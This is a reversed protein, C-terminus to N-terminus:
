IDFWRPTIELTVGSLTIGNAGPNLVPYEHNATEVYEGMRIAGCHCLMAECDIDIYAQTHENITVEMNGIMFSGHGYVRILPQSPQGCPNMLTGDNTFSIATEGDKLWKQPQATFELTVTGNLHDYKDPAFSKYFIARRYIYPTQSEEVRCMGKCTALFSRMAEMNTQMDGKIGLKVIYSFQKFRNNDTVLAGNRGLVNHLTVDREAGKLFNSELIQASFDAFDQENFVLHNM